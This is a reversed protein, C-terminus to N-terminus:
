LFKLLLHEFREMQLRPNFKKLQDPIHIKYHGSSDLIAKLNEALLNVDDPDQIIGANGVVEPLSSTNSVISIKGFYMAELPPIGFGEYKSLYLMGACKKILNNKEHESIYGTFQVIDDLKLSAVLRFISQFDWGLQGVIVYKYNLYKPDSKIFREFGLIMNEINKGPEITCVTIFFPDSKLSVEYTLEPIFNYVVTVKKESINCIRCIDTKSYESVTLVASSFKASFKSIFRVYAGRLIGYKNKIIFPIMDHVTPIISMRKNIFSLLLPVAPTPSYFLGRKNILLLPIIFQEYLIRLLFNHAYPLIMVHIKESPMFGFLELVNIKRNSFIVVKEVKNWNIANFDLNRVIRKFYYATGALKNSNYNLLNIYLQAL